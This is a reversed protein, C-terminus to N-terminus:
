HQPDASFNVDGIKIGTFKCYSIYDPFNNPSFISEPIPPLFPNQPNPFQYYYPIFRWSKGHPLKEEIGLILKHLLVIDTMTVNGDMNADAAILQYPNSIPQIGLIHKQILVLDYTTVGNLPNINKSPTVRLKEDIFKLRILFQYYYGEENTVFYRRTTDNCRINEVLFETNNIGDQDSTQAVLNISPDCIATQSHVVASSNCTSVNGSQDRAWIEFKTINEIEGLDFPKNEPFGEGSCAIRIGLSISDSSNDSISEICESAFVEAACDQGTYNIVLQQKCVLTPPLTDIQANSNVSFLLLYLICFPTKM